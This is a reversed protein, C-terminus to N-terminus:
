FSFEQTFADRFGMIAECSFLDDTEPLIGLKQAEELHKIHLEFEIDPDLEGECDLCHAQKTELLQMQYEVPGLTKGAYALIDFVQNAM